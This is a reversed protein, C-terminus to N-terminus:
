IIAAPRGTEDRNMWRQANTVTNLLLLFLGIQHGAQRLKLAPLAQKAM